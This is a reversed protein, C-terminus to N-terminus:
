VLRITQPVLREYRDEDVPDDLDYLAMPDAPRISPQNDDTTGTEGGEDGDEPKRPVVWSRRLTDQLSIWAKERAEVEQKLKYRAMVTHKGEIRLTGIREFTNEEDSPRLLLGRLSSQSEPEPRCYEVFLLYAHVTESKTDLDHEVFFPAQISIGSLRDKSDEMILEQKNNYVPPFLTDEAHNDKVTVQRLFGSIELKINPSHERVHEQKLLELVDTLASVCQITRTEFRRFLEVPGDVSAWSWSPAISLMKTSSEDSQNEKTTWLLSSPLRSRWHGALCTDGPFLDEFEKRLGSLAILKDEKKSLQKESYTECLGDWLRHLKQGSKGKADLSGHTQMKPKGDFLRKLPAGNPFTESAFYPGEACCEWVIEKKSFHLVRRALHREQHVWARQLLPANVTWRFMSRADITAHWTEGIGPFTLSIPVIVLPNREHFCGERADFAYDAAINLLAHKYVQCMLLAERNWDEGSDQVICLSDIWLWRVIEIM